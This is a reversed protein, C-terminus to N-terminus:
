TSPVTVSGDENIFRAPTAHVIAGFAGNSIVAALALSWEGNNRELPLLLPGGSVGGIDSLEPPLREGATGVWFARDLVCTVVREDVREVPNLGSYLAFSLARAGTWFRLAGPFGSLFVAQGVTPVPPPWPSGQVSQKGIQHLEDWTLSFTAIDITKASGIGSLRAEPDFPLNGVHCVIDRPAKKKDALYGEYVHAATVAFLNDGFRLFFVSGNSVKPTGLLTRRTWRLFTTHSAAWDQMRRSWDGQLFRAREEVSLRNLWEATIHPPPEISSNM